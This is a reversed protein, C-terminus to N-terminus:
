AESLINAIVGGLFNGIICLFLASDFTQAVGLYIANAICHQFGCFIFLPVGYFIGMVSGKKFLEVCIFMIMGCAFSQIFYPISWEWALVKTMAVQVLDPNAISLLYGFLWGTVLNIVLITALEGKKNRWYYGTKGTFLSADLYCVGLLGFAFLVPGLPNGLILLVAAGFGILISALISKKM